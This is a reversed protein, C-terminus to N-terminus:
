PVMTASPGVPDWRMWAYLAAELPKAGGLIQGTMMGPIAVLGIVMMTNLTPTVATRMCSRALPLVAEDVTAGFALAIEVSAKHEVLNTLLERLALGTASVSNGLLMGTIPIVYRPSWVPDPQLVVAFAFCGVLVVACTLALWVFIFIGDFTYKPNKTSEYTALLTMLQVYVVVVIPYHEGISFVPALILGCFVLQLLTRVAGIM